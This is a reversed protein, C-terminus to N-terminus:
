IPIEALSLSRPYPFNANGCRRLPVNFVTYAMEIYGVTTSLYRINLQPLGSDSQDPSFFVDEFKIGPRIRRSDDFGFHPLVLRWPGVVAFDSGQLDCRVRGM